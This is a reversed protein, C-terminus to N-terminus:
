RPFPTSIDDRRKEASTVDQRAQREAELCSTYKLFADQTAKQARALAGRAGFLTQGEHITLNQYTQITHLRV